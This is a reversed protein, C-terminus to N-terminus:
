LVFDTVELDDNNRWDDLMKEVSVLSEGILCFVAQPDGISPTFISKATGTCARHVGWWLEAANHVGRIRRRVLYLKWPYNHMAISSDLEAM